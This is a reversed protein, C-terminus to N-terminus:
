NNSLRVYQLVRCIRINYNATHTIMRMGLCKAAETVTLEHPVLVDERLLVGPHPPRIM